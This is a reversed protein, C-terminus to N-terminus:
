ASCARRGLHGVPLSRWAWLPFSERPKRSSPFWAVDHEQGLFARRLGKGSSWGFPAWNLSPAIGITLIMLCPSLHTPSSFCLLSFPLEGASYRKCIAFILRTLGLGLLILSVQPVGARPGFLKFFGLNVLAVGPTAFEFFDRYIMEGDLMRTANLLFLNEDGGALIPTFPLCFLRLYLFVFPGLLLLPLSWGEMRRRLLGMNEVIARRFLPM